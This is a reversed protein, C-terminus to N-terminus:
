NCKKYDKEILELLITDRINLYQLYNEQKEEINTCEDIINELTKLLFFWDERSLHINLNIINKM